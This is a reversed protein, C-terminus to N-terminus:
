KHDHLTHWRKLRYSIRHNSLEVSVDEAAMKTTSLKIKKNQLM